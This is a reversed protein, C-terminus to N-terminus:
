GTQYDMSCVGVWVGGRGEGGGGWVCLHICRFFSEKYNGKGGWLKLQQLKEERGCVGNHSKCDGINYIGKTFRKQLRTPLTYRLSIFQGEEFNSFNPIHYPIEM